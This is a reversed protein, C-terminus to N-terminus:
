CLLTRISVWVFQSCTFCVGIVLLLDVDIGMCMKSDSISEFSLYFAKASCATAYLSHRVSKVADIVGNCYFPGLMRMCSNASLLLGAM